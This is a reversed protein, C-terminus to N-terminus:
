TAAGAVDAIQGTQTVLANIIPHLRDRADRLDLFKAPYDPGTKDIERCRHFAEILRRQAPTTGRLVKGPATRSLAWQGTGTQGLQFPRAGKQATIKLSIM